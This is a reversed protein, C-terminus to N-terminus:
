NKNKIMFMKKEAACSKGTYWYINGLKAIYGTGLSEDVFVIVRSSAVENKQYISVQQAILV